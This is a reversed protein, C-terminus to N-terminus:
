GLGLVDSTALGVPTGQHRADNIDGAIALCHWSQQDKRVRSVSSPYQKRPNIWTSM